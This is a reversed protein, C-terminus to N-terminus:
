FLVVTAMASPWRIAAIELASTSPTVVIVPVIRCAMTPTGAFPQGGIPQAQEEREGSHEHEKDTNDADEKDRLCCAVEIGVVTVDIGPKWSYNRGDEPEVCADQQETRNSHFKGAAM